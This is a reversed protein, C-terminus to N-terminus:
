GEDNVQDDTINQTLRVDRMYEEAAGRDVWMDDKSVMMYKKIIRHDLTGDGKIIITSKHIMGLGEDPPTNDICTRVFSRLNGQKNKITGTSRGNRQARLVPAQYNQEDTNNLTEMQPLIDPNIVEKHNVFLWLM